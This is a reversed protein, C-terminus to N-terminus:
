RGVKGTVFSNIARGQGLAKVIQEDALNRIQDLLDHSVSASNSSNSQQSSSNNQVVITTNVTSNQSGGSLSSLSPTGVYGGTAYGQASKMLSYLNGVGLSKTAEKTFVFEGGHVIGKPEYKGGDGTYGGTAHNSLVVGSATITSTAASASSGIWGMAKQVAMAVLLQNIISVLNTLISKTFDKFNAKGTTVLTTMMSSMSQMSSQAFSQSASFVNQSTEAYQNLGSTLGAVWDGQNKDEQAWSAQLSAKAKNYEETVKSIENPNKTGKLAIDRQADLESMSKYRSTQQSTMGFTAQTASTSARLKTAYEIMKQLAKTSSEYNAKEDAIAAVREYQTLLADKNALVYKEQATLKSKNGSSELSQIQAQLDFYKKREATIATTILSQNRLAELQNTLSIEQEKSQQLLNTVSNSSKPKDTYQKTWYAVQKDYRSQDFTGASKMKQSDARLEALKRELKEQNTLSSEIDKQQRTQAEIAQNQRELWQAKIKEKEAIMSSQVTLSQVENNAKNRTYSNGGVSALWRAKEIKEDLTAERGIDLMADWASKAADKVAGWGRELYGLNDKIGDARSNLAQAYEAEALNQAEVTKGQEQLAQIQQYVSATLYNYQKQLEASGKVPDDALKAFESVTESVAKGTSEYMKVATTAVMELANGKFKNTSLAAQLAEVAIGTTGVSSSINKAMSVLQSATTGSYNGTLILTKNFDSLEKQGNYIAKFLAAAGIALGGFGVTVPNILSTLNKLTSSVGGSQGVMTMASSRLGSIDGRALQALMVSLQRRTAAAGQGLSGTISNAQTLKKIYIDASSSVGLQAAKYRLLEEKTMNQTVLQEKLKNIFATKANAANNEAQTIEKTKASTQVLLAHYNNEDLNGSKRAVRIQSQIKALQESAGKLEKISDIQNIFSDHLEDTNKKLKSSTGSAAEQKKRYEEVRKITEDVSDAMKSFDKQADAQAKALNNASKEASQAKNSFEDLKKAGQELSSTEVKLSITATDTM